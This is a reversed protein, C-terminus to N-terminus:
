LGLGQFYKMLLCALYLTVFIIKISFPIFSIYLLGMVNSLCPGNMIYYMISKLIYVFIHKTVDLLRM